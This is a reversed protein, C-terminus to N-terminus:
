GVETVALWRDRNVADVPPDQKSTGNFFLLDGGGNITYRDATVSRDGDDTEIDYRPM